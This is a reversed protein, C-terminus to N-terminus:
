LILRRYDTRKLLVLPVFFYYVPESKILRVAWCATPFSDANDICRKVYYILMKFRNKGQM